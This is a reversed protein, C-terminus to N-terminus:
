QVLEGMAQDLKRYLEAETGSNDVIVDARARKEADSMQSNIRDRVEQPSAGDRLCVRQIRTDEEATILLVKHCKEDMGAEFLLPVDLLIGRATGEEAFAAIQRDMEAGIAGFMMEDLKAKRVPDTFVLSALNKRILSGKEDLIAVAPDGYAGEPGFVRELEPLVPSGDATMERSIADADVHAFGCRKLYSAATSKGTGIGGTLGIVKM